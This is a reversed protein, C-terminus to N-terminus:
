RIIFKNEAGSLNPRGHSSLSWHALNMSKEIHLFLIHSQGSLKWLVLKFSLHQRFM